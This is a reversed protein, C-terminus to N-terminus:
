ESLPLDGLRLRARYAAMKNLTACIREADRIDQHWSCSAGGVSGDPHKTDDIWAVFGLDALAAPIIDARVTYRPGIPPDDLRALEDPDLPRPGPGFGAVRIATQLEANAADLFAKLQKPRKQREVEEYFSDRMHKCRTAYMQAELLANM